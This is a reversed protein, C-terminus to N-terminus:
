QFKLFYPLSFELRQSEFGFHLALKELVQALPLLFVRLNFNLRSRIIKNIVLEFRNSQIVLLLSRNACRLVFLQHNM